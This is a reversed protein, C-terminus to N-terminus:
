GRGEQDGTAHFAEEAYARAQLYFEEWRYGRIRRLTADRLLSLLTNYQDMGHPAGGRETHSNM